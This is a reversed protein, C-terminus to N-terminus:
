VAEEMSELTDEPDVLRRRKRPGKTDVPLPEPSSTTARGGTVPAPDPRRRALPDTM